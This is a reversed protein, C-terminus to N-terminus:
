CGDSVVSSESYFNTCKNLALDLFSFLFVESEVGYCRRIVGLILGFSIMM